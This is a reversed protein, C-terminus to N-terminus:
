VHSLGAPDNDIGFVELAKVKFRAAGALLTPSAHEGIYVGPLNCSSRYHPRVLSTLLM